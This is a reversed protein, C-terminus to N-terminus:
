GLHEDTLAKIILKDLPLGTNKQLWSWEGTPNVEIFYYESNHLILDIAAFKLNLKNSFHFCKQKIEQPLDYVQYTIKGDFKRWDEAIQRDGKIAIAVLESGVVTVRLDLKPTLAQQVFFPSDYRFDELTAGDVIDTYVFAEKEGKSVIAADISKIAFIKGATKATQNTINTEPVKFGSLYAYRLQLAKIEAKYTDAPHNVWNVNEFVILARIFAAWQTIFLQEQESFSDSFIERLFTPARFYVSQLTTEDFVYEDDAIVVRLEPAIPNFNIQYEGLQDRNLRLYSIGQLHLQYTILDTSFDFKNSIILIRPHLAM